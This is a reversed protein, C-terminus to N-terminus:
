SLKCSKHLGCPLKFHLWRTSWVFCHWRSSKKREDGLEFRWRFIFKCAILYKTIKTKKWGSDGQCSSKGGTGQLCLNTDHVQGMFIAECVSNAVIKIDAFLLFQSELYDTFKGFGAITAIKGELPESVEFRLPLSIITYFFPDILITDLVRIVGIDNLSVDSVYGEHMILNSRDTITVGYLAARNLDVIGLYISVQVINNLCHAAQYTLFLFM